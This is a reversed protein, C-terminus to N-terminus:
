ASPGVEEYRMSTDIWHRLQDQDDKPVGMLASIVMAPIRAAFDELYDFGGSGALGDLMGACLEHVRADLASVRRPTFARSVLRRLDDHRPPDMFIMMLGMGARFEDEDAVPTPDIIELVTGRASSYTQWDLSAALVDDHRSLAYFGYRDNYYCPAEDRLRRWVEYPDRDIDADYPDFYVDSAASLSVDVETPDASMNM